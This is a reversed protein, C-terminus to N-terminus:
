FILATTNELCLELLNFMDQFMSKDLTTLSRGSAVSFSMVHLAQTRIYPRSIFDYVESKIDPSSNPSPYYRCLQAAATNITHSWCVLRMAAIHRKNLVIVQLLLLCAEAALMPIPTSRFCNSVCHQVQRKFIDM